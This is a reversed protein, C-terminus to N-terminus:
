NRLSHRRRCSWPNKSRPNSDWWGGIITGPVSKRSEEIDFKFSSEWAYGWSISGRPINVRGGTYEASRSDWRKLPPPTNYLNIQTPLPDIKQWHELPVLPGELEKVFNQQSKRVPIYSTQHRGIPKQRALQLHPLPNHLAADEILEGFEGPPNLGVQDKHIQM